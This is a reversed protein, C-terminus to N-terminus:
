MKQENAFIDVPDADMMVNIGKQSQSRKAGGAGSM